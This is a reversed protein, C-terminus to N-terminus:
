CARARGRRRSTGVRQVRRRRDDIRRRDDRRRDRGTAAAATATVTAGVEDADVVSAVSLRTAPQFLEVVNGSPDQLLIQKGGPGKM